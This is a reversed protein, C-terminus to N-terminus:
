FEPLEGLYDDDDDKGDTRLYVDKVVSVLHVEDGIRWISGARVITLVRTGELLRDVLWERPREGLYVHGPELHIIAMEIRTEEDDYRVASLSYTRSTIL